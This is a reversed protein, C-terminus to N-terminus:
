NENAWYTIDQYEVSTAPVTPPTVAGDHFFRFYYDDRRARAFLINIAAQPSPANVKAVVERVEGTAGNLIHVTIKM